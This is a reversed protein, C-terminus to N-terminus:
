PQEFRGFTKLPRPIRGAPPYSWILPMNKSFLSTMKSQSHRYVGSSVTEDKEGADNGL